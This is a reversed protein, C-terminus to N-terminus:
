WKRVFPDAGLAGRVLEGVIAHLRATLQETTPAATRIV